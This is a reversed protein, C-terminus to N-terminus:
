LETSRNSTFRRLCYVRGQGRQAFVGPKIVLGLVQGVVRLKTHLALRRHLHWRDVEAAKVGATAFGTPHIGERRATGEGLALHQRGRRPLRDPVRLVPLVPALCGAM